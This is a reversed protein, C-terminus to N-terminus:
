YCFRFIRLGLMQSM